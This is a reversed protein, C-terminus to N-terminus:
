VSNAFRRIGRLADWSFDHAQRGQLGIGGVDAYNSGAHPAQEDLLPDPQRM